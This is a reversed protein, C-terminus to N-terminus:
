EAWLEAEARGGGPLNGYRFEVSHISRRTGPLDFVRECTISRGPARRLM